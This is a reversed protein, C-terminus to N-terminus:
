SGPPRDPWHHKPYRGRLEKRVQAYSGRWFGALDSTVQVPRLGPSLLEVLCRVRGRAVAPTEMVGFLDQVRASLIPPRGAEYRIPARRGGPLPWSEPAERDLAAIRAPGLGRVLEPVLPRAAAEELSTAGSAAAIRADLLRAEDMVPLALEPVAEALLRYRALFRLTEEDRPRYRDPDARMAGALLRTAEDPEVAIGGRQDLVIDEYELVERAEVRGSGRDLVTERRRRVREPFLESLWALDVASALTVLAQDGPGSRGAHLEVAVFLRADRVASERAIRVGVGGVMLARHSGRARRRAVRDPFAALVLRLLAEEGAPRRPEPGLVRRATDQLGAAARLIRGAASGADRLAELWLLLDSSATPPPSARRDAPLEDRETLLAAIRAAEELLGQRHGFVLLRGLRPHLPFRRLLDGLPTLTGGPASLAGLRVLLSEGRALDAPAPAEFWPFQDPAGAGLGRVELLPGALDVRRIEPVEAEALLAHRARTWLRYCRGPGERGARGARQDASARSIPGLELRDLGRGPDHRMRRVLGTDVIATIGPLTLSTEAVNTALIVRRLPSPKWARDQEAAPLGGHLLLLEVGAERLEREMVRATRAIEGKGPLFVLVDGRSERLARRLGRAALAEPPGEQAEDGHLIEVPHGRLDARLVPVGGLFEAVPGAEMTASMVVIALDPRLRRRIEAAFALGLDAQLSREHFEDLVVVDVGELLPDEQLRRTLLGETVVLVRTSPGAVREFRIHYGVIAGLRSGSEAAMRAAAARAAVRRPQLLVLGRDPALDELLALPVRTTKGAGPPAVVVAGRHTRVAARIEPLLVDIPLPPREPERVM